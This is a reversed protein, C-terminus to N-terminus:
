GADPRLIRGGFEERAESRVAFLEVVKVVTAQVDSTPEM